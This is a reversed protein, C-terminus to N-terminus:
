SGTGSRRSIPWGNAVGPFPDLERFSITELFPKERVVDTLSRKSHMMMAIASAVEPLEAAWGCVEVENGSHEFMSLGFKREDLATFVQAARESTAVSAISRLRYGWYNPTSRLAPGIGGLAEDLLASLSGVRVLDPYFRKLRRELKRM